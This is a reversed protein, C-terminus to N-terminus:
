ANDKQVECVRERFMRISYGVCQRERHIRISCGVSDKEIYGSVEWKICKYEKYSGGQVEEQKESSAKNGSPSNGRVKCTTFILTVLRSM